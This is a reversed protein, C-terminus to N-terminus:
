RGAAVPVPAEPEAPAKAPQPLRPAPPRRWLDKMRLAPREVLHWSAAALILTFVMTLGLYAPMGWRTWGIVALVQQVVFGYIYIGYSYDNRAGIRRFPAPLRIALWVLAYAFAPIGFVFFYGYHLSGAVVALSAAGLWDSVPIRDRYLEILVGLCFALGLYITYAPTVVGLLPLEVAEFYRAESPGHWFPKDLAQRAVLWFLVATVLLVARRARTLVGTVALVAVGVYCLFEYRLSWLAGDFASNYVQAGSGRLETLIGSIDYQRMALSWNAQVYDLPGAPGSFGGLDGRVYWHLFPAAVFATFLLCVWFGPLIRLVRHWFYRGVPLRAGSRSVLIGSLVFFGYVSITGLTLQGHSFGLLHEKGGYGLIRAHSVVVATALALRLFGLSNDRGTFLEAVTGRSWPLVFGRPM